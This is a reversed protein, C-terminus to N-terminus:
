AYDKVKMKTIIREGFRDLLEIEPRCVLGEAEFKQDGFISKFGTKTRSEAEELTGTWRVPVYRMSMKLAIDEVDSRRLFYELGSNNVVYIDFLIFDVKHEGGVYRQGEGQIKWGVGEGYFTIYFDDSNFIKLHPLGDFLEKLRTELLTPLVANDTRGKFTPTNRKHCSVRVNMGHLKETMEWMSMYLWKFEPRAFVETFKNSKEQRQYLSEIKHYKSM